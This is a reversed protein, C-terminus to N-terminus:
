KRKRWAYAFLGILGAALLALTGPEPVVVLNVQGPTTTDVAFHGSSLTPVVGLDLGNDTLQGPTYTILTWRDGPHASLFSGAVTETVNLTGDLTLNTVSQILDNIGSGVTTNTGCLEYTLTSSSALMLSANSITLTAPSNGPALAAAGVTVANSITGSGGLVGAIVNVPSALSGNVLLTGDNVTTAGSYTSAGSLTLTGAGYKDLTAGSSTLATAWTVARGNTHVKYQQGATTVFRASYDTANSSSYALIGGQFSLTGGGLSNAAGPLLTGDCLRTGGSYVNSGTLTLTGTGVKAVVVKNTYTTTSTSNYVDYIHGAYTTSANLAGIGLTVTYAGSVNNTGLRAATSTGALAGLSITGSFDRFRADDNMIWTANASGRLTSTYFTLAAGNAQNIFTGAFATNNGQLWVYNATTNLTVTGSGSLGGSLRIDAITGSTSDCAIFNSTANEVWINNALTLNNACEVLTGGSLKLWGTGLSSANAYGLAGASVTTTGSYTNAVRLTVTGSGTKTIAVSNTGSSVAGSFVLHGSSGANWTQNALLVVASAITSTGSAYTTAVGDAGLNLTGGTLSYGNTDFALGGATILEEAGISVAGATVGFNAIYNTTDPWPVFDGGDYWNDSGVDWSGDGGQSGESGSGYWYYITGANGTAVFMLLASLIMGVLVFRIGACRM